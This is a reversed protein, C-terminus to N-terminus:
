GHQPGSRLRWRGGASNGGSSGCIAVMAGIEAVQERVPADLGFGTLRRCVAALGPVAAALKWRGAEEALAVTDAMRADAIAAVLDDDAMTATAALRAEGDTHPLFAPPVPRRGHLQVSARPSPPRASAAVMPSLGRRERSSAIGKVGSWLGSLRAAGGAYRPPHAFCFVVQKGVCQRSNHHRSSRM